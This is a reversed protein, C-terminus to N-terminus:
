PNFSLEKYTYKWYDIGKWFGDRPVDKNRGRENGVTIEKHTQKCENRSLSNIPNVALMEM